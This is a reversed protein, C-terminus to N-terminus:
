LGSNNLGTRAGTMRSQGSGGRGEGGWGEGYFGRLDWMRLALPWHARPVRGERGSQPHHNPSAYECVLSFHEKKISAKYEWTIDAPPSSLIRYSLNDGFCYVISVKMLFVVSSVRYSCVQNQICESPNGSIGRSPSRDMIIRSSVRDDM